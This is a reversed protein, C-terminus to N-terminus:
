KLRREELGLWYELETTLNREEDQLHVDMPNLHLQQQVLSLTARVDDIRKKPTHVQCDFGM